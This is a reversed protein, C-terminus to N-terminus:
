EFKFLSSGGDVLLTTGTVSEADDSALFLMAKAVQEATQLRGLPIAKEAKRAYAEDVQIQRKAMGANVIGPAVMNVRIQHEGLELAACRGLMAVAAKSSCYATNDVNPVDQVWSGTIVISGGTGRKVMRRAAAQLFIFAGTVNVDMQLQWNELKIDLLRDGRHVGANAIAIDLDQLAAIAAGVEDADTVDVSVFRVGLADIQALAAAGAVKDFLTVIAGAGSFAQAAVLGIEGAGGTIVVHKGKFKM